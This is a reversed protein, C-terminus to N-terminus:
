KQATKRQYDRLRSRVDEATYHKKDEIERVLQALLELHDPVDRLIEEVDSLIPTFWHVPRGARREALKKGLNEETRKLAARLRSEERAGKEADRKLREASKEDGRRAYAKAAAEFASHDRVANEILAALSALSLGDLDKPRRVAAPVRWWIAEPLTEPIRDDDFGDVISELALEVVDRHNSGLALLVPVLESKDFWTLLSDALAEPERRTLGLSVQNEFCFAGFARVAKRVSSRTLRPLKLSSRRRYEEHAAIIEHAKDGRVSITESLPAFSRPRRKQKQPRKSAM